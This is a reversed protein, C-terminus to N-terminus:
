PKGEAPDGGPGMRGDTMSAPIDPRFSRPQAAQVGDTRDVQPYPEPREPRPGEASERPDPM